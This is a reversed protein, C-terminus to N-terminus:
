IFGVLQFRAQRFSRCCIHLGLQRDDTKKGQEADTMAQQEFNQKACEWIWKTSDDALNNQLGYPRKEWVCVCICVFVFARAVTPANVSMFACTYVCPHLIYSVHCVYICVGCHICMGYGAATSHQTFPGYIQRTDCTSDACSGTNHFFPALCM